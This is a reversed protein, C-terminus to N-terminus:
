LLKNQGDLPFNLIENLFNKYFFLREEGEIRYDEHHLFFSSNFYSTDADFEHCRYEDIM